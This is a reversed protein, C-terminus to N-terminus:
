NDQNDIQNGDILANGTLGISLSLSNDTTFKVSRRPSEDAGPTHLYGVIRILKAYKIKEYKAQDLIIATTATTPSEVIGNSNVNAAPVIVQDQKEFFLSDIVSKQETSDLFYMQLGIQLPFANEVQFRLEINDLSIIGGEDFSLDIDNITDNIAYNDAYGELPLVLEADIEIKSSDTIFNNMSLGNPNALATAAFFAEKPIASIVDVLNDTNDGSIEFTSTVGVGPTDSAVMAFVDDDFTGTILTKSGDAEIVSAEDIALGLELGSQNLVKVLIRPNTFGVNDPIENEPLDLDFVGEVEGFEYQGFDGQLFSFKLTGMNFSYNITGGTSVGTETVITSIEYTLSNVGNGSAGTFDIQYGELSENASDNNKLNVSFPVGDKVISPFTITTEVDHDFDKSQNVDIFGESLVGEVLQPAPDPLDSNEITFSNFESIKVKDEEGLTFVFANFPIEENFSQNRVTFRDNINESLVAEEYYFEIVNNDGTRVGISDGLQTLNSTNMSITGIPLSIGPRIPSFTLDNIETICGVFIVASLFFLAIQKKM